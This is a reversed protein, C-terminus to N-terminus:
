PGTVGPGIIASADFDCNTAQQDPRPKFVAGVGTGSAPGTIAIVAAAASVGILVSKVTSRQM